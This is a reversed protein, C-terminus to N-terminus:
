SFFILPCFFFWFFVLLKQPFNERSVQIVCGAELIVHDMIVSNSIKVNDAISCHKGIISRKISCRDGITVGEDIMSDPGVKLLCALFPFPFSFYFFLVFLSNSQFLSKSFM